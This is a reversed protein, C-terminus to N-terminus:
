IGQQLISVKEGEEITAEDINSAKYNFLVFARQEVALIDNTRISSFEFTPTPPLTPSENEDFTLRPPASPSFSKHVSKRTPTKEVDTESEDFNDNKVQNPNSKAIFRPPSNESSPIRFIGQHNKTNETVVRRKTISRVGSCLPAIKM